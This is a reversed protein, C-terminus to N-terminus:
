QAAEREIRIPDCEGNSCRTHRAVSSCCGSLWVSDILWVFGALVNRWFRVKFTKLSPPLTRKTWELCTTVQTQHQLPQLGFSQSRYSGCCYCYHFNLEGAMTTTGTFPCRGSGAGSLRPHGPPPAAMGKAFACPEDIAAAIDFVNDGEVVHADEEADSYSWTMVVVRDVENPNDTLSATIAVCCVRVFSVNCASTVDVFQLM